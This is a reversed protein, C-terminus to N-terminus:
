QATNTSSNAAKRSSTKGAAATTKTKGATATVASTAEQVQEAGKEAAKEAAKQVQAVNDQTVKQADEVFAKHADVLKEADAKLREGFQQAVEPQKGVYNRMAEVDRIELAAYANRFAMDTCAKATEIQIGAIKEAHGTVTHFFSRMPAFVGTEVQENVQNITKSAM